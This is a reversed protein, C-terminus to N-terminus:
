PTPIMIRLTCDLFTIWSCAGVVCLWVEPETQPSSGWDEAFAEVSFAVPQLFPAFCGSIENQLSSLLHTKLKGEEWM